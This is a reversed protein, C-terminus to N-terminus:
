HMLDKLGQSPSILRLIESTSNAGADQMKFQKGNSLYM